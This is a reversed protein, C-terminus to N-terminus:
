GTADPEEFYLFTLYIKLKSIYNVVDDIRYIFPYSDDYPIWVDPTRTIQYYLLVIM